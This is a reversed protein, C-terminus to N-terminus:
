WIFGHGQVAKMIYNNTIPVPLFCAGNLLKTDKPIVAGYTIICRDNEVKVNNLVPNIWTPSLDIFFKCMRHVVDIISEDNIITDLPLEVEKTNTSLIYQTNDELNVATIILEIDLKFLKSM